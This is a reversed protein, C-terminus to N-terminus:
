REEMVIGDLSRPGGLFGPCTADRYREIRVRRGHKYLVVTIEEETTCWGKAPARYYSLLSDLAAADTAPLTTTLRAPRQWFAYAERRSSRAEVDGNRRRTFRFSAKEDHFCGRSRVHVNIRQHPALSAFRIPQEGAASPQCAALPIALLLFLANRM